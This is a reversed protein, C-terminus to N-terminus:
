FVVCFEDHRESIENRQALRDKKLQAKQFFFAVCESDTIRAIRTTTQISSVEIEDNRAAGEKDEKSPGCGM